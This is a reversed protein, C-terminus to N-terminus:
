LQTQPAPALAPEISGPVRGSPQLSADNPELAVVLAALSPLDGLRSQLAEVAELISRREGDTLTVLDLTKYISPHLKMPEICNESV